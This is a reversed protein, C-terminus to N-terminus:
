PHNQWPVNSLTQLCKCSDHSSPSIAVVLSLSAAAGWVVCLVSRQLLINDLGFDVPGLNLLTAIRWDSLWTWSKAVEHVAARWAERDKVIEWFKSLSMDMLNIIGDFWRTRQWGRRRGGEIRGLMLSKELSFSVRGRYVHPCFVWVCMRQSAAWM